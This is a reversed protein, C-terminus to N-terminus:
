RQHIRHDPSPKGSQSRIPYILPIPPIVNRFILVKPRNPLRKPSKFQYVVSHVWKWVTWNPFCKVRHIPRHNTQAKAVNMRVSNTCMRKWTNPTRITIPANSLNPGNATSLVYVRIATTSSFFFFHTKKKITLEERRWNEVSDYESKIQLLEKSAICNKPVGVPRNLHWRQKWDMRNIWLKWQVTNNLGCKELSLMIFAAILTRGHTPKTGVYCNLPSLARRNFRWVKAGFNWSRISPVTFNSISQILMFPRFQRIIHYRISGYIVNRITMMWHALM